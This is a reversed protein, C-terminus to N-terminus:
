IKYRPWWGTWNWLSLIKPPLPYLAQSLIVTGFSNTKHLTETLHCGIFASIGPLSICLPVKVQKAHLIANVIVWSGPGWWSGLYVESSLQCPWGWTSFQKSIGPVNLTSEETDSDKLDSHAPNTLVSGPPIRPKIFLELFHSMMICVHRCHQQFLCHFLSFSYKYLEM